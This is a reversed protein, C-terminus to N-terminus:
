PRVAEMFLSDPKRVEGEPTIELGSAAFGPIASQGAAVQRVDRFGARALLRGLSLRDYMWRHVEGGRRFAGVARDAEQLDRRPAAAPRPPIHGAALGQRFRTLESGVRATVFAEAPMPQREWFARMMGGPEERTMQDFLELLLWDYEEGAAADGALAKELRDLYLRVIAELDPVALRLVGGPRLVRLCEALFAPAAEKPLHELLHSCYAADCSSDEFPLGQSVDHGLVDAGAPDIDLNIWGQAKAEGCGINVLRM